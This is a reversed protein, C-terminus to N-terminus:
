SRAPIVRTVASVQDDVTEKEPRRTAQVRWVLDDIEDEPFDVHFSRIDTATQVAAGM